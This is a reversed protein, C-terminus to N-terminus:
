SRRRRAGASAPASSRLLGTMRAFSDSFAPWHEMDLARRLWEGPAGCLRGWAGACVAENWAELHHAGPSMLMPLTDALM